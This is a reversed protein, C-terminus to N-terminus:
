SKEYDLRFSKPAVDSYLSFLAFVVDAHVVLAFYDSPHTDKELPFFVPVHNESERNLRGTQISRPRFGIRKKGSNEKKRKKYM